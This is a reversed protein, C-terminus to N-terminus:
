KRGELSEGFCAADDDSFFGVIPIPNEKRPKFLDKSSREREREGTGDENQTM